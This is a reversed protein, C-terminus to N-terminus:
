QGMSVLGVSASPPPNEPEAPLTDVAGRSCFAQEVPLTVPIIEVQRISQSYLDQALVRLIGSADVEFVVEVRATGRPLPPIGPLELHGLLLNDTARPQQGQYVRIFVSDQDDQATTFIRSAQAPIPANQRVLPTFRGGEVEVGISRPAVDVLTYRRDGTLIAAQVAAGAAVMLDPDLSVDPPIGFIERALRRVGPMRTAGGALIVRDVEAATLNAETLARGTPAELREYLPGTLAELQGRSLSVTARGQGMRPRIGALDVETTDAETLRRRAREATQRLRFRTHPNDELDVGVQEQCALRLWGALATDWDDGGLFNDGEVAVVQYVGYAMRLVSVDFTGGGLDWVVVTQPTEDGLGYALAAATPENLIRLVRLGAQEAAEVTQSRQRADFYAPVTIVVDRVWEGLWEGADRAVQGLIQAAAEAPTLQGHPLALVTDSGMLRKVSSIVDQPNEEAWALAPKGVLYRGGPLVAVVSPTLLEGQQNPIVEPRNGTALAILSHTTGLDIGVPRSM